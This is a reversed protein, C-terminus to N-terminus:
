RCSGATSSNALRRLHRQRRKQIESIHWEMAEVTQEIAYDYGYFGWCSDLDGDQESEIVYGYTDGEDFMKLDAPDPDDTWESPHMPDTDYFVRATIGYRKFTEVLIV